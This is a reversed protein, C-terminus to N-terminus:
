YQHLNLLVLTCANETIIRESQAIKDFEDNETGPNFIIRVPKLKIIYEYYGKQIENNIYLTVTHIDDWLVMETNIDTEGIKGGRSGIARVKYGKKLLLRVAMNSYKDLRESAGIVLTKDKSMDM